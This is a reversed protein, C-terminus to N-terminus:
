QIHSINEWKEIKLIPPIGIESYLVEMMVESVYGENGDTTVISDHLTFIPLNPREISIRKCVLLLIIQAEIYQLLCALSNYKKGKKIKAFIEFVIPFFKNFLQADKNYGISNNRSFFATFIARKAIKRTPTLDNHDLLNAEELLKGFHEYINGNCVLEKYLSIDHFFDIKEILNLLELKTDTNVNFVTPNLIGLLPLVKESFKAKDFLICSLYPQSNVIDISVLKQSDYTVFQRLEAKMQTLVTHLRGATNDVRNNIFEKNRLKDIPLKRANFNFQARDEHLYSKREQEKLILLFENASEYDITLKDNFWKNLYKIDNIDYNILQPSDIEGYLDIYTVISKILTPKYIFDRKLNTEYLRSFKFSKSQKGVIYHNKEILVENEILYNIYYRYDHIRRQVLVSWFPVFYMDRDKNRSPIDHILYCLYKFCDLYYKFKPPNEEIIEILDLNEPLYVPLQKPIDM